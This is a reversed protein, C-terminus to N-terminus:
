FADVPKNSPSRTNQPATNNAIRELIRTQNQLERTAPDMAVYSGGGGGVEALSSSIVGTQKKAEEMTKPAADEEAKQKDVAISEQTQKIKEEIDLLRMAAKIREEETLSGDTSDMEAQLKQAELAKLKEEPSLQEFAIAAKRDELTQRMYAIRAEEATQEKQAAAIQEQVTLLENAAKLREIEPLATNMVQTQLDFEMKQLELIREEAQMQELKKKLLRDELQDAAAGVDNKGKQTKSAAVDVQAQTARARAKKATNEATQDLAAIREIAKDLGQGKTIADVFTIFQQGLGIISGFASKGAQGMLTLADNFKEISLIVQESVVYADAFGQRLAEPGQALTPILDQARTGLLDMLAVMKAQDKTAEQYAAALMLMKDELSANAFAQASVGLKDFKDSGNAAEVTLKSMAKVVMELDAGALGAAEGIRQITDTTENLRTALKAVRDMENRFSNFFNLVGGIAFAGAINGAIDKSWSRAQNRMADLGRDFATRNVGVEVNLKAM